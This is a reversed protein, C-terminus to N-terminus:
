PLREHLNPDFKDAPIKGTQGAFKGAKQKVRIMEGAAGSAPAAGEGRFEWIDPLMEAEVEPFHQRLLARFRNSKGPHAKEEEEAWGRYSSVGTNRFSKLRDQSGRVIADVETKARNLFEQLGADNVPVPSGTAYQQAAALLMPLTEWKAEKINSLFPSGGGGAVIAMENALLNADQKTMGMKQIRGMLASARGAAQVMLMDRGVPGRGSQKEGSLMQGYKVLVDNIKAPNVGGAGPKAPAEGIRQTQTPDDKQVARVEPKGAGDLVTTLMFAPKEARVRNSEANMAAALAREENMGLGALTKMTNILASRRKEGHTAARNALDAEFKTDGELSAAYPQFMKGGLLRIMAAEDRKGRLADVTAQQQAADKTADDVFGGYLEDVYRNPDPAEAQTIRPKYGGAM